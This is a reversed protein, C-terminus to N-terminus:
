SKLKNLIYKKYLKLFVFFLLISMLTIAILKIPVVYFTANAINGDGLELTATFKGALIPLKYEANNPAWEVALDKESGPLVYSLSDNVLVENYVRGTIDNKVKIRGLPKEFITGNNKLTVNFSVPATEYIKNASNFSAVVLDHKLSTEGVTLYIITLLRSHISTKYEASAEDGVPSAEFAIADYYSGPIADKPVDILASVQLEDNPGLTFPGGALTIWKSTSYEVQGSEMVQPTGDASFRLDYPKVSVNIDISDNNKLILSIQRSEGPNLRIDNFNPSLTLANIPRVFGFLAIAIVLSYLGFRKIM